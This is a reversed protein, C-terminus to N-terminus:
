QKLGAVGEVKKLADKPTLTKQRGRWTRRLEGWTLSNLSTWGEDTGAGGGGHRGKLGGGMEARGFRDVCVCCANPTLRISHLLLGQAGWNLTERVELYFRNKKLHRRPTTPLQIWTESDIKRRNEFICHLTPPFSESSQASGQAGTSITM